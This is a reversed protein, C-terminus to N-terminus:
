TTVAATYRLDRGINLHSSDSRARCIKNVKKIAEEVEERLSTAMKVEPSDSFPGIARAYKNPPTDNESERRQAAKKQRENVEQLAVFPDASYM